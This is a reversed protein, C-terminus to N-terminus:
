EMGSLALARDEARGMSLILPDSKQRLQFDAKSKLGTWNIEILAQAVAGGLTTGPGTIIFVDPAFTRAAVQVAASFDYPTVVQAGLTYSRLQEPTCSMPHWVKGNGDVLAHKPTGFYSEPLVARGHAAVPELLASHFAAHNPLRMPYRNQLPALGSEFASLGAENGAVVLMGGLYISVALEHEPRSSIETIRTLLAERMGPIEQWNEDVFPYISQGGIMNEQMLTGMTNVIEFANQPAVAGGVALAIYWGLSNGTVGAIDFSGHIKGADLLASAYILASANDGRTHVNASFRATGDLASLTAQGLAQRRADFAQVLKADHGHHTQLYSLEPKNYTGRGPCIVVAVKRM